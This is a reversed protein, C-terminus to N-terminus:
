TGQSAWTECESNDDVCTSAATCVGNADCEQEAALVGSRSTSTSIMVMAVLGAWFFFSRPSLTMIMHFRKYLSHIIVFPLIYIM